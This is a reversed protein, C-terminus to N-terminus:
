LNQLEELMIAIYFRSPSKGLLDLLLLLSQARVLIGLDLADADCIVLIRVVSLTLKRNQGSWESLRVLLRTPM